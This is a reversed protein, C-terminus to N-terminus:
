ELFHSIIYNFFNFNIIKEPTDLYLTYKRKRGYAKLTLNIRLYFKFVMFDLGIINALYFLERIEDIITNNFSVDYFIFGESFDEDMNKDEDYYIELNSIIFTNLLLYEDYTFLIIDECVDDIRFGIFDFKNPIKKVTKWERNYLILYERDKVFKKTSSQIGHKNFTKKIYKAECGDFYEEEEGYFSTKLNKSDVLLSNIFIGNDNCTSNTFFYNMGEIYSFYVYANYIDSQTYLTRNFIIDGDFAEIAYDHWECYSMTSKVDLKDVVNFNKPKVITFTNGKTPSGTYIMIAEVKELKKIKNENNITEYKGDKYLIIFM